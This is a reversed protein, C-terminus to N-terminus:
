AHQAVVANQSASAAQEQILTGGHNDSSTAFLSSMYNGLLAINASHTGDTVTLKGDSSYSPKQATAFSIDAFDITDQGSLGAVTGAFSSSNDLQLTGTTGTFTVAQASAGVIEATTGAAITIANTSLDSVTQAQAAGSHSPATVAFTVSSLNNTENSEPVMNNWYDEKIYLTHQGVSLNATNIKNTESVQGSHAALSDIANFALYHTEDVAQDVNIGAYHQGAAANGLNEVAYSIVLDDGQKVDAPVGVFSVGLDAMPPATVNFTLSTTNNNQDAATEAVNQWNDEKIYLTHQGVSLNATSITNVELAEAYAGLSSVNNWGLYHTQDVAQDVNFGAYHSGAAASTLNKVMYSFDLNSGQVVSAFATIKGEVVLDPTAGLSSFSYLRTGSYVFAMTNAAQALGDNGIANSGLTAVTTGDDAVFHLGNLVGAGHESIINLADQRILVGGANGILTSPLAQQLSGGDNSIVTSGDQSILKVKGILNDINGPLDKNVVSYTNSQLSVTSRGNAFQGTLHIDNYVFDYATMHGADFHQVIRYGSASTIDSSVLPGSSYAANHGYSLSLAPIDAYNLLMHSGQDNSEYSEISGDAYLLIRVFDPASPFYTQNPDITGSAPIRIVTANADNFGISLAILGDNNLYAYDTHPQILTM